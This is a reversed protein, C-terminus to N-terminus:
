MSRGIVRAESGRKEEVAYNGWDIPGADPVQYEVGGEGFGM